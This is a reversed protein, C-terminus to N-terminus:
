AVVQEVISPLEDLLNTSIDELIADNSLTFDLDESIRWDGGYFWTMKVCRGPGLFQARNILGGEGGKQPQGPLNCTKLLFSRTM